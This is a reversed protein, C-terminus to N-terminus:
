TYPVKFCKRDRDAIKEKFSKDNLMDIMPSNNSANESASM